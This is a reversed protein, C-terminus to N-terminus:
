IIKLVSQEKDKVELMVNCDFVKIKELFDNFRGVNITKSHAGKNSGARQESYHIILPGDEEGWTKGAQEVVRVLPEGNNNLKHHLNDVVVPLGLKLCDSVSYSKEDNEVVLRNKLNTSLTSHVKKFRNIAQEKAGYVGGAHIIIKNTLDLGMLDLVSCHYVLEKISREVVDKKNSNIVVYQDPHMTLRMGQEKAYSGLEKFDAKFYSQWDFKCIPHSAFPVLQSSVRFFNVGKDENWELIRKLCSLNRKVTRILREKSYNRLRFTRSSSCGIVTNVCAYGIRVLYIILCPKFFKLM